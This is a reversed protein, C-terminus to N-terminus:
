ESAVQRSQEQRQSLREKEKEGMGKIFFNLCDLGCFWARKKFDFRGFILSYDDIYHPNLAAGCVACSKVEDREIEKIKSDVFARLHHGGNDLDKRIKV